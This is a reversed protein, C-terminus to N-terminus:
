DGGELNPARCCTRRGDNANTVNMVSKVDSPCRHRSSTARARSRWPGRRGGRAPQGLVRGGRRRGGRGGGRHGGRPSKVRRCHGGGGGRGGLWRRRRPYGLLRQSTGSGSRLRM